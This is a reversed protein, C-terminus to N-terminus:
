MDENDDDDDRNNDNKLCVQNVFSLVPRFEGVDKKIGEVQCSRGIQRAITAIELESRSPVLPRPARPRKKPITCM